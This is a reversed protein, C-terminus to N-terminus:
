PPERPSSGPVKVVVVVVVVVVVAEGVVAADVNDGVVNAGDLVM